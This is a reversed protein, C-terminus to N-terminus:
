ACLHYVPCYLFLNQNLKREEKKFCEFYECTGLSFFYIVVFVVVVVIVVVFVIIIIIIIIIFSEQEKRIFYRIYGCINYYIIKRLNEEQGIYKSCGAILMTTSYHYAPSISESYICWVQLRSPSASLTVNITTLFPTPAVLEFIPQKGKVERKYRKFLCTDM